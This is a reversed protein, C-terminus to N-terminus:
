AIVVVALPPLGYRQEKQPFLWSWTRFSIAPCPTYM